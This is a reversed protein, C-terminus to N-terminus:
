TEEFFQMTTFKEGDILMEMLVDLTFIGSQKNIAYKMGKKETEIVLRDTHSHVTTKVKQTHMM